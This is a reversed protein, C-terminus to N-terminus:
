AAAAAFRDRLWAHAPDADYRRHWTLELDFGSLELPPTRIALDLDAAFRRAVREPLTLVYDTGPLMHPAVLFSSVTRAVRRAMGRQKLRADVVGSPIGRPAILVHPAAAFRKLTLKGRLLPHGRRMVCVFQEHLLVRRRIDDPLDFFVGTALDAQKARLQDVVSASGGAASFLDVGPADGSLQASVARVVVLEAYDTSALRFARRMTAPELEAPSRFLGQVQDLAAAVQPRLDAARQTLVMARGARVLLPDDLLERLRSLAHSTASPSLGVRRAADKVSQSDLLADLVVLLNLDVASLQMHHM